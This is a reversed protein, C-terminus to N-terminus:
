IFIEYLGMGALLLGGILDSHKGLWISEQWELVQQYGSTSNSTALTSSEISDIANQATETSTPKKYVARISWIGMFLILCGGVANGYAKSFYGSVYEGTSISIYTALMSLVAIILNSFPTIGLHHFALAYRSGRLVNM